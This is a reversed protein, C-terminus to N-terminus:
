SRSMMKTSDIFILVIIEPLVAPLVEYGRFCAQKDTVPVQKCFDLWDQAFQKVGSNKSFVQPSVCVEDLKAFDTRYTNNILDIDGAYRDEAYKTFLAKNSFTYDPAVYMNVKKVDVGSTISMGLMLMFPYVTSIAGVILVLYLLGIIIRMRLSKRGVVPIISM